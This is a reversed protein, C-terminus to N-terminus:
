SRISFVGSSNRTIIIIIIIIIIYYYYNHYYYYYNHYYYYYINNLNEGESLNLPVSFDEGDVDSTIKRGGAGQVSLFQFGLCTGWLPFVDGADNAKKALNFIINGTRSYPSDYIDAGGGPFLVSYGFLFCMLGKVGLDFKYNKKSDVM